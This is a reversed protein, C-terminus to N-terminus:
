SAYKQLQRPELVKVTGDRRCILGHREYFGLWKNVSERTSGVLAAIQGQTLRIPAPGSDDPLSPAEDALKLLARALRSPVDLFAVDSLQMTTRRLRHSMTALLRAGLQPREELFQLFHARQLSLLTSAEIAVADASRPEGDLLALEGFFDGPGLLDLIIENGEPSCIALKVRGEELVFLSGGADGERFIFEGRAYPRRRLRYSMDELETQSLDSFLLVRALLAPGVGSAARRGTFPTM